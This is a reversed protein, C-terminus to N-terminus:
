SVLIGAIAATVGSAALTIMKVRRTNIGVRRASEENSGIAKTYRGLRTHSYTYWGAVVVLAAIWIPTYISLIKGQGLFVLFSDNIPNSYGGTILEAVGRLATLGALTVIFSAIGQYASFYGVISGSALGILLVVLLALVPNLHLALIGLSAGSV